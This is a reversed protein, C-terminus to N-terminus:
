FEFQPKPETHLLTPVLTEYLRQHTWEQHAVRTILKAYMLPAEGVVVFLRGGITLQQLWFDPLSPVSGTICIIDYATLPDWGAAANGIQGEINSLGLHKWCQHAKEAIDPFIEVSVVNKVMLSLLASLYGSGTGIELASEDAQVKLSQLIRAVERPSLMVQGHPLPVQMDAYSFEKYNEPVFLERPLNRMLNLVQTDVVDWTRIQQEIMDHRAQEFNMREGVKAM